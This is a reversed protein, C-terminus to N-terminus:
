GRHDQGMSHYRGDLIGSGTSFSDRWLRCRLSRLHTEVGLEGAGARDGTEKQAEGRLGRTFLTHMAARKLALAEAVLAESQGIAEHVLWLLDAISHQECFTFAPMQFECAHAWSTRPHQVGTTGAIAWEHFGPSNFLLLWSDRTWTPKRASCSFSRRVSARSTLSCPKTWTRASSEYLVDGPRFASTNSRM